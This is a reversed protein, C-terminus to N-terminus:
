NPSVVAVRDGRQLGLALLAHALRNSRQELEAFTVARDRFLIAPRDAWFRASRATYMGLNMIQRRLAQLRPLSPRDTSLRAATKSLSAHDGPLAGRLCAMPTRRSSM